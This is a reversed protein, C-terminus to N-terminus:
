KQMAESLAQSLESLSEKTFNREAGIRQLADTVKYVTSSPLSVIAFASSTPIGLIFQSGDVHMVRDEVMPTQLYNIQNEAFSFQEGKKDLLWVVTGVKGSKPSVWVFYRAVMKVHKSNRLMISPADIVMSTPNQAVVKLDNLAAENGSLVGDGILSLDLGFQKATGSTVVINREKILTSFGIAVKELVFRGDVQKVNALYVLNFLDAYFKAVKGVAAVDGQALNGKVFLLMNSFGTADDAGVITGPPIRDLTRQKLLVIAPPVAAQKVQGAPIVAQGLALRRSDLVEFGANWAIVLLLLFCCKM